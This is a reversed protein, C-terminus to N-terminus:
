EMITTEIEKFRGDVGLDEITTVLNLATVIFVISSEPQILILTRGEMGIEVMLDTQEDKTTMYSFTEIKGSFHTTSEAFTITPTPAVGEVECSGYVIGLFFGM